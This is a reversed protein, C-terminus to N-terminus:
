TSLAELWEGWYFKWEEVDDYTPLKQHQVTVNVQDSVGGVSDGGVSDGDVPNLSIVAASSEPGIGIRIAKSDPRSRLVTAQDPFLDARHDDDLLMKRLVDGNVAVTAAKTAAFLGDSQQYPLRLGAIREYSVTVAQAWWGTIDFNAELYRAVSPHDHNDVGGTHAEIIDAWEDHGRGTAKSMAEDSMEPPSVWVRKGAAKRAEAEKAAQELLVKRAATYREGTKAMRARIRRKFSEQSTM